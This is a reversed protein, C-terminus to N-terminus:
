LVVANGAAISLGAGHDEICQVVYRARPEVGRIAQDIWDRRPQRGVTLPIGGDPRGNGDVGVVFLGGGSNWFGSAARALKETLDQDRTLSSKYEHRDDEASPLSVLDRDELKLIAEVHEPDFM